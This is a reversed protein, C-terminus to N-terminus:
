YHAPGFQLPQVVVNIRTPPIAFRLLQPPSETYTVQTNPRLLHGERGVVVLPFYLSIHTLIKVLVTSTNRDQNRSIFKFITNGHICTMVANSYWIHFFFKKTRTHCSQCIHHQCTVPFFSGQSLSGRHSAPTVISTLVPIPLLTSNAPFNWLSFVM